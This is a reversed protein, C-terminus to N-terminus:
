CSVHKTTPQTHDDNQDDDDITMSNSITKKKLSPFRRRRKDFHDKLNQMESFCMQLKDQMSFEIDGDNNRNGSQQDPGATTVDDNTTTKINNNNDDILNSTKLEIEEQYFSSPFSPYNSNPITHRHQKEKKDPNM